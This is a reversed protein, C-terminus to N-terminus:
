FRNISLVCISGVGLKNEIEGLRSAFQNNNLLTNMTHIIHISSGHTDDKNLETIIREVANFTKGLQTPLVCMTFKNEKNSTM